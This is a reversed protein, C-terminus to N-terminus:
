LNQGLTDKFSSYPEFYRPFLALRDPRHGTTRHRQFAVTTLHVREGSSLTVEPRPLEAHALVGYLSSADGRVLGTEAVIREEQPSLIHARQRLLDLLFHSFEALRPEERVWRVITEPAASLIEPRLFARRKSVETALVEIEQRRARGTARRIDGDSELSAFAQLRRLEEIARVDAALADALVGASELLKGRFRDVHPLRDESFAKKAREFAPIDAFLDALSWTEELPTATTEL